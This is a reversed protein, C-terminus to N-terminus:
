NTLFKHIALREVPDLNYFVKKGLTDLDVVISVLNNELVNQGEEAEDKTLFANTVWGEIDSGLANGGKAVLTYVITDM